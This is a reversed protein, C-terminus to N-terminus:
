KRPIESVQMANRLKFRGKSQGCAGCSPSIRSRICAGSVTAATMTQPPWAAAKDDTLQDGISRCDRRQDNPPRGITHIRVHGRRGDICDDPDINESRRATKRRIRTCELPSTSDHVM